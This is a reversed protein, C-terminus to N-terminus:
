DAVWATGDCYWSAPTTTDYYRVGTLSAAAAPRAALTGRAHSVGMYYPGNTAAIAALPSVQVEAGYNGIAAYTGPAVFVATNTGADHIPKNVGRLAGSIAVHTSAQLSVGRDPSDTGSGDDDHGVMQTVDILVKTAGNVKVGAWGGGGANANRGDRRTICGRITVACEGTGTVYIGDQENRDTFCGLLLVDRQAGTVVFGRNSNFLSWCNVLSGQGPVSIFYGDLANDQAGCDLLLFDNVNNLSWGRRCSYIWVDQCRLGKPFVATGSRTYSDGRYGAPANGGVTAGSEDADRIGMNFLRWGRCGGHMYIGHATVGGLDIDFGGISGEDCDDTTGDIYIVAQGGAWSSFPRLVCNAHGNTRNYMWRSGGAGRLHVGERMTIQTSVRYDGPPLWVVTNEAAEDIALQIAAADDTSGDGKAAYDRQVDVVGTLCTEQGDILVNADSRLQDIGLKYRLELIAALDFQTGAGVYEM